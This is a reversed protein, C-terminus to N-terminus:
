SNKLGELLKINIDIRMKDETEKLNLVNMWFYRAQIKRDLKWLIDGYHDNVVPDEPMLEVARKLYTEAKSFNNVLYYAWGISDIIYPDNSRISYALELMEIALDIKYERELWSYALYNLVYANDPEIELSSLLDKDSKSYNGLREYSGGRRYLIESYLASHSDIKSLIEDYYDIADQYRKLNKNFNAIDFIMKITPKKINKFEKNIFKLSEEDNLEKSIIQAQKKLKFWHYLDDKENFYKLNKKAKKYDNILYYNEVLLTKNFKFKSNLYYSLNLYFNSKKYNDQSSYLNAILFLFESVIDNSNKCSFTESFKDLKKEEIWKKGQSILLTSNLYDVEDVIEKAEKLRDNEILYNINFYIYRSFENDERKNTLSLFYTDTNKDSLYCKQFVENIFSLNGFNNNTKSIKQEKFVTLYKKLEEYVIVEFRNNDILNISQELYDISKELNKNKLSDLALILYFEFFRSNSKGLNQKIENSAEQVKGELVLSYIYRELYPDHKNILYKSSKFFKLAEFNNKNEYAVIGSFYNSIYRSNLDNLSKSKSYLPSQFFFVIILISNFFKLLM